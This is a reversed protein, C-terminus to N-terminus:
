QGPQDIAAIKWDGSQTKAYCLRETFLPRVAAAPIWGSKGSPLLVEVDTPQPQGEKAPPYFSLMPLAVTGVKAVPAGTDGPAKAVDTNALTFYWDARDDGTEIKKSAQEFIKDDAVDAAIPGCILNGTDTVAYYTSDGAFAALADWYPGKDVGGDEDKGLARFGFVVKFNHIADRGLDLEDAPQGGLTWLFTPAILASLAAVDKKAVADAFAARMKDFAADPRYPKSVTVKIEPYAVKKVAAAAVANLGVGTM